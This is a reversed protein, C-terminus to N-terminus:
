TGMLVNVIYNRLLKTMPHCLISIFDHQSM